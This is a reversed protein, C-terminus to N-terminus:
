AMSPLHCGLLGDRLKHHKDETNEFTKKLSRQLTLPKEQHMGQLLSSLSQRDVHTHFEVHITNEVGRAAHNTIAFTPNLIASAASVDKAHFVSFFVSGVVVLTLLNALHTTSIM